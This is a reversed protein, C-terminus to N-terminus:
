AIDDVVANLIPKYSKRKKQPLEINGESKESQPM